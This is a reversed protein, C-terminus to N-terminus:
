AIEATRGAAPPDDPSTVRITYPPLRITSGFPLTCPATMREADDAVFTGNVSGLDRAVFGDAGIVIEAHLRSVGADDLAIDPPLVYRGFTVRSHRVAVTRAGHPATVVVYALIRASSAVNEFVRLDDGCAFLVPAGWQAGFRDQALVRRAVALAADVAGCEGLATYFAGAFAAAADEDIEFQMAVVQPLGARVLGAGISTAADDVGTRAGDCASAVVLRTARRADHLLTALEGATVPDSLGKEDEFWLVGEGRLADISGHSVVHVVHWPGDLLAQALSRRTARDVRAFTARGRAALERAGARVIDWERDGDIPDRDKPSATVLLVRLADIVAPAGGFPSASADVARVIPTHESLALAGVAHPDRLYEWPLAALWPTDCHVRVRMPEGARVASTFTRGADADDLSSFLHVGLDDVVRPDDRLSGRVGRRGPGIRALLDAAGRRDFPPMWESTADGERWRVRLSTEGLRLECVPPHM